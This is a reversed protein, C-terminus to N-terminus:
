FCVNVFQNVYCMQIKKVITCEHYITNLTSQAYGIETVSSSSVGVGLRQGSTEASVVGGENM